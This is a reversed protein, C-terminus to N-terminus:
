GDPDLPRPWPFFRLGVLFGLVAALTMLAQIQQGDADQNALILGALGAAMLAALVGRFIARLVNAFKRRRRRRRRRREVLRQLKAQRKLERKTPSDPGTGTGTRPADAPGPRSRDPRAQAPESRPSAPLPYRGGAPGGALPGPPPPQYPASPPRSGDAVRPVPPQQYEVPSSRDPHRPPPGPEATPRRATGPEGAPGPSAPRAPHSATRGAADAAPTRSGHRPLPATQAAGLPPRNPHQGDIPDPRPEPGPPPPPQEDPDLPLGPPPPPRDGEVPPTVYTRMPPREIRTESREDYSIRIGDDSGDAPPASAAASQDAAPPSAVPAPAPAPRDAAPPPAAPAPQDAVNTPPASPQTPARPARATSDDSSRRQDAAPPGFSTIDPAPNPDIATRPAPAMIETAEDAQYVALMQSRWAAATAPRQDRDISLSQELADRIAPTLRATALDLREPHRGTTLEALVVTAAYIDVREDAKGKPDGQEPAMYGATGGGVTVASAGASIDRALGFDALLLREDAAILETPVSPPDDGTRRLLLNSPKIDRHVVGKDHIAMLCQGLEDIFRVLSARSPRGVTALRSRLTGGDALEMVVYPRGDDTEGLDFVGILRDNALRRAVRAEAVFRRRVEVDASHNEALVKIAVTSELEPDRASYVSAFGGIGIREIVEYRGFRSPLGLSGEAIARDLQVTQDFPITASGPEPLVATPDHEGEPTDDEDVM